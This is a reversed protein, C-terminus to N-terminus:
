RSLIGGVSFDFQGAGYDTGAIAGQGSAGGFRGTGGTITFTGSFPTPFVQAVFGPETGVYTLFLRSGDAATITSAGAFDVLDYSIVYDLTQIFTGLETGYGHVLSTLHIGDATFTESTDQGVATANFPVQPRNVLNLAPSAGAIGGAPMSLAILASCLATIMLAKAKM